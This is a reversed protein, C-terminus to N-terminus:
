LAHVMRTVMRTFHNCLDPTFAPVERQFMRVPGGAPGCRFWARENCWVIRLQWDRGRIVRVCEWRIITRARTRPTGDLAM